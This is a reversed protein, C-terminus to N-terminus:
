NNLLQIRRQHIWAQKQKELHEEYANELYEEFDYDILHEIEKAFDSHMRLTATFRPEKRYGRFSEGDYIRAYCMLNSDEIKFSLEICTDEFTSWTRIDSLDLPYVSTHNAKYNEWEKKDVTCKENKIEDVIKMVMDWRYCHVGKVLELLEFLKETTM